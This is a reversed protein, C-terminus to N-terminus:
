IVGAYLLVAVVVLVVIVGKIALGYILWKPMGVNPNPKRTDAM